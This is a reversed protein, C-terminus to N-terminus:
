LGCKKRLLIDRPVNDFAKKFDVFCAFINKKRHYCYDDIINHVINLADSTRLGKMFGLQSESFKKNKLAWETIRNNM